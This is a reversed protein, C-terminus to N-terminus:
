KRLPEHHPHSICRQGIREGHVASINSNDVIVQMILFSYLPSILLREQNWEVHGILPGTQAVNHPQIWKKSRDGAYGRANAEERTSYYMGRIVKLNM